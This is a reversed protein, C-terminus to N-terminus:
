VTFYKSGLEPHCTWMDLENKKLTLNEVRAKTRMTGMNHFTQCKKRQELLFSSM